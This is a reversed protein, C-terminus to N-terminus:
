AECVGGSRRLFALDTGEIRVKHNLAAAGFIALITCAFGSIIIVVAYVYETPWKAPAGFGIGGGLMASLASLIIGGPLCLLVNHQNPAGM